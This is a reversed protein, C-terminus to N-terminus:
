LFYINIESTVSCKLLNPASEEPENHQSWISPGPDGPRPAPEDATSRKRCLVARWAAGAPSLWICVVKKKKKQSSAIKEAKGTSTLLSTM